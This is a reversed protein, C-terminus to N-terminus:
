DSDIFWQMAFLSIGGAILGLGIGFIIWVGATILTFGGTLLSLSRLNKLMVTNTKSM